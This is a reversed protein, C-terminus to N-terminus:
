PGLYAVASSGRGFRSFSVGGHGRRREVERLRVAVEGRMAEIEGPLKDVLGVARGRVVLHHEVAGDRRQPMPLMAFVAGVCIEGDAVPLEGANFGEEAVGGAGEDVGFGAQAVALVERGEVEAVGVFGDGAGGQERTVLGAGAVMEMERLEAERLDDFQFLPLGESGVEFGNASRAGNGAGSAGRM